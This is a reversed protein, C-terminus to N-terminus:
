EKQNTITRDIESNIVGQPSEPAVKDIVDYEPTLGDKLNDYTFGTENYEEANESYSINNDHEVIYPEPNGNVNNIMHAEIEHFFDKLLSGLGEETNSRGFQQVDVAIAFLNKDSSLIQERSMGTEQIANEWDNFVEGYAALAEPDLYGADKKNLIDAAAKLDISIADAHNLIPAVIFIITNQAKNPDSIKSIYETLIASHNIIKFYKDKFFSTFMKTYVLEELGDLDIAVIPKNGAFQYPTYWPFSKTLPDVSLFKGIQSNYIRFGYDYINGDGAVEDDQEKGNFGYRYGSGAQWSRGSLIMGFPDYQLEYYGTNFNPKM